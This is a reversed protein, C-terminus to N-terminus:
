DFDNFYLCTKSYSGFLYRFVDFRFHLRIVTHKLCAAKLSRALETYLADAHGRVIDEPPSPDDFESDNLSLIADM